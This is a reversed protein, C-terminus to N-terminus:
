QRADAVLADLFNLCKELQEIGIWEDSIHAESDRGPGCVVSSIGRRQFFGAETGYDIARTHNTQAFKCALRVAESQEDAVLPPVDYVETTEVRAGDFTAQMEPLLTDSVFAALRRSVSDKEEPVISRVEWQLECDGPILNRATGSNLVGTSVTAYPLSFPQASKPGLKFEEAYLELRQVIKLGASLASLGIDPRSSHVARGTIKTIMGRSGKHGEIVAMDTPEGIFAAIPTAVNAALYDVLSHIGQCGVEEDYSFAIHVSRQLPKAQLRPVMALVCALFGKMDSTGRGYVRDHERILTFPDRQWHQGQVPVVDTHGSLVYGPVSPNGITAILNAKLGSENYVLASKVGLKELYEAVYSILELNSESSITNFSVLKELIAVASETLENMM